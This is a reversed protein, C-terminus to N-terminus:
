LFPFNIPSLEHFRRLLLGWTVATNLIQDPVLAQVFAVLVLFCSWYKYLHRPADNSLRPFTLVLCSFSVRM